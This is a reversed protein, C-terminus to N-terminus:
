PGLRAVIARYRPDDRLVALDDDDRLLKLDHFGLECATGLCELAQEQNGLLALHCALNYRVRADRPLLEVLREDCQVSDGIRGIVTYAHALFRLVDIDDPDRALAEEAVSVQFRTGALELPDPRDSAMQQHYTTIQPSDRRSAWARVMIHHAPQRGHEPKEGRAGRRLGLVDGPAGVQGIGRAAVVFVSHEGFMAAVESLRDILVRRKALAIRGPQRKMQGPDPQHAGVSSGIRRARQVIRGRGTHVRQARLDEGTKAVEFFPIKRRTAIQQREGPM